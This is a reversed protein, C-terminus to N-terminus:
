GSYFPSRQRIAVFYRRIGKKELRSCVKRRNQKMFFEENFERYTKGRPRYITENIRWTRLAKNSNKQAGEDGM